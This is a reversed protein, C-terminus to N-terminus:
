VLENIQEEIQDICDEISKAEGHRHDHADPAGDYDDHVFAFPEMYGGHYIKYGKYQIPNRYEITVM